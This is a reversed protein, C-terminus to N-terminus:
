PDVTWRVEEYIAAYTYIVAVVTTDAPVLFDATGRDCAAPDLDVTAMTAGDQEPAVLRHDALQIFWHRPSAPLPQDDACREGEIQVRTTAPDGANRDTVVDHLTVTGGTSPTASSGVDHGAAATESRLPEFPSPASPPPDGVQWRAATVRDTDALLVEEIDVGDPLALDVTGRQCTGPAMTLTVLDRVGMHASHVNGDDGLALWFAADVFLETTGACLEVDIRDLRMGPEPTPLGPDLTVGPELSNIRALGGELLRATDGVVLGEEVFPNTESAPPAEGPDDAGDGPPQAVDPTPADSSLVTVLVIWVVIAVVAVIALLPLWTRHRGRGDPDPPATLQQHQM